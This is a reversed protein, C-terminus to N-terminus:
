LSRTRLWAFVQRRSQAWDNRLREKWASVREQQRVRAAKALEGECQTVLAELGGNDPCAVPFSLKGLRRALTCANQWTHELAVGASGFTGASNARQRLIEKLKSSLSSLMKSQAFQAGSLDSCSRKNVYGERPRKVSARGKFAPWREKPVGAMHLLAAEARSTWVEFLADPDHARIAPLWLEDQLHEVTQRLQQADVLNEKSVVIHRPVQRLLCKQRFDQIRLDAFVPTHTPFGHEGAFNGADLLCAFAERNLLIHDLRNGTREFTPLPEVGRSHAAWRPADFLLGTGLASLLVSSDQVDTNLDGAIVAPVPGLQAMTELVATLLEENSDRAPGPCTSNPFGHVVLLYIVDRCDGYGVAALLVRGLKEFKALPGKISLRQAPRNIDVLLGVGGNIANWVSEKYGARKAMAVPSGWVPRWGCKELETSMARQGSATLKVETCILVDCRARTAVVNHIQSQCAEINAAVWREVERGTHNSQVPHEPQQPARRTSM